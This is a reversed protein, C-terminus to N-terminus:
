LKNRCRARKFCLSSQFVKVPTESIRTRLHLAKVTKVRKLSDSPSRKLSGQVEPHVWFEGSDTAPGLQRRLPADSFVVAQIVFVAPLQAGGLPIDPFSLSSLRLIFGLLGTFKEEWIRQEAVSIGACM